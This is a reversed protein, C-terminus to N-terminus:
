FRRKKITHSYYCLKAGNILLLIVYYFTKLGTLMIVKANTLKADDFKQICIKYKEILADYIKKIKSDKIDEAVKNIVYFRLREILLEQPYQVSMTM